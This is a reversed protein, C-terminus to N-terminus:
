RVLPRFLIGVLTAVISSQTACAKSGDKTVPGRGFNDDPLILFIGVELFFTDNLTETTNQATIYGSFFLGIKVEGSDLVSEALRVM